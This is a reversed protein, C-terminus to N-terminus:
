EALVAGITEILVSKSVKTTYTARVDNAELTANELAARILAHLSPPARVDRIIADPQERARELKDEFFYTDWAYGVGLEFQLMLEVEEKVRMLALMRGEKEHHGVSMTAPQRKYRSSKHIAYLVDAVQKAAQPVDVAAGGGHEVAGVVWGGSWVYIYRMAREANDVGVLLTRDPGYTVRAFSPSLRQLAQEGRAEFATRQEPTLAAFAIFHHPYPVKPPSTQTLGIRTVDLPPPKSLIARVHDTNLPANFVVVMLNSHGGDRSVTDRPGRFVDFALLMRDVDRFVDFGLQNFLEILPKFSPPIREPTKQSIGLARLDKVEVMVHDAHQEGLDTLQVNTPTEPPHQLTVMSRKTGCATSIFCLMLLVGFVMGQGAADRIMCSRQILSQLYYRELMFCPIIMM